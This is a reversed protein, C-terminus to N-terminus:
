HASPHILKAFRLLWGWGSLTLAVFTMLTLLTALSFRWRKDRLVLLVVGVGIPGLCTGALAFYLPMLIQDDSGTMAGMRGRM